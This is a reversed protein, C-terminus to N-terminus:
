PPHSHLHHVIHPGSRQGEGHAANGLGFVDLDTDHQREAAGIGIEAMLHVLRDVKVHFQVGLVDRGVGDFQDLAVFARRGACLGLRNRGLQDGVVLHAHQEAERERRRRDRQRRDHRLRLHRHDDGVGARCPDGVQRRIDHPQREAHPVGRIRHAGIGEVLDAALGRRQSVGVERRAFVRGFGELGTELLGAALDHVRDRKAARNLYRVERREELLDLILLGVAHVHENRGARVRGAYHLRVAFETHAFRADLQDPRHVEDRVVLQLVHAIGGDAGDDHAVVGDIEFIGLVLREVRFPM